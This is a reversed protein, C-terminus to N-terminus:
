RARVPWRRIMILYLAAAGLLAVAAIGLASTFGAALDPARALRWAVLPPGVIQGAGYALTLLGMWAAAAQPRLRRAEEMALLTITTFPLGLLVSTAVSGAVTPSAVGAAIGAAQLLHCAVLWRRRDGTVPIRTALLAGVVVAIGFLPWFGDVWRDPIGASRAIVPSFTATVIYGFGALAYAGTLLWAESRVRGVPDPEPVPGGVSSTAAGSRPRAAGAPAAAVLREAGGFVPWVIATVVLALLGLAAWAVAASGDVRTMGMGLVGSAVIGVGPGTFVVGGLSSARAQALRGLCWGSTYVLVIASAAGALLRLAPWAPPVPLAVALTSLATALLGARVMTAYRWRPLGPVRSWIWPQLTCFGAGVLHGLYNATALRSGAALDVQGDALMLPLIPTFAFRGIGMAVALSLLGAIAVRIAPPGTPQGM